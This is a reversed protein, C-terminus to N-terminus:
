SVKTTITPYKGEIHNFLREAYKKHHKPGSHKKDVGYDIFYGFNGNFINEDEYNSKVYSNDWIWDCKKSELFYKILQHNKYWNHTDDFDNQLKDKLKQTVKGEDTDSFYGWSNGVVYPEIGGNQTYYDRRHPHTYLILVLNPKILDYYSILCRSIFDNSRGGVGFNMNVGNVFLSSIQSSWTEDDNVGVGETHSCGISMVKFGEKNISDGRFGLENYTYTCLKTNDSGSTKYSQNVRDQLHYKYSSIEFEEPTWFKFPKM